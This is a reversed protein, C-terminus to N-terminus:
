GKWRTRKPDLEAVASGHSGYLATSSAAAPSETRDLTTAPMPVSTPALAPAQAAISKKEARDVETWAERVTLLDTIQHNIGLESPNFQVQILNQRLVDYFHDLDKAAKGGQELDLGSQLCALVLIADNISNTRLEINEQEIAQAAARLDQVAREYLLVVLQVGTAGGVDSQRYASRPNMTMMTM